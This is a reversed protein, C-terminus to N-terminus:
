KSRSCPRQVEQSSRISTLLRIAAKIHESVTTGLLLAADVSSNENQNSKMYQFWQVFVPLQYPIGGFVSYACMGRERERQREKKLSEKKGEKREKKREKQKTCMKNYYM